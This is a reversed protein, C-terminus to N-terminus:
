STRTWDAAAPTLAAGVAPVTPPLAGNALRARVERVLHEQGADFEQPM